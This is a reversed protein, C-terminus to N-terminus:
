LTRAGGRHVSALDDSLLHDIVETVGIGNAGATVLDAHSKLEPLANAVAVAFGCAMLFPHDNEADGIAVVKEPPLSLEVLAQMLGFRKDVGAPLVMLSGKNLTVDLDLRLERIAGRVTQEHIDTTAVVARGASCPVKLARLRAILEESAPACLLEEEGTQPRYILAGNEAVVRDFLDLHVFVRKLDTLERGTVLLLTRGSSLLRTLAVVTDPEVRGGTALTGDYDTALALFQV